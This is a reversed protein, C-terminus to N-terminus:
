AKNVYTIYSQENIQNNNFAYCFAELTYEEDEFKEPDNQYIDHLIETNTVDIGQEALDDAWEQKLVVIRM